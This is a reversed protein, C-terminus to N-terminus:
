REPTREIGNVVFELPEGKVMHVINRLVGRFRGPIPLSGVAIHPTAIVNPLKLLPNDAPTPEQKWVDLAAGAIEGTTLARCLAQEDVLGGRATNVLFASKKMLKFQATGMMNETEPTHSAHLSVFDSERLLNDLPAYTAGYQAAEEASLKHRTFYLIHLGFAKARKATEAGTDGFGIIGLTKGWLPTIGEIQTWNYVYQTPTTPRPELGLERYYGGTVRRHAEFLGKSLALLLCLAHEAVGMHSPAPEVALPMGRKTIAEVAVQHYRTGLKMVFRLKPGAAIVEESVPRRQGAGGIVLADAEPLMALLQSLEETKPEQLDIEYGPLAKGIETTLFETMEDFYHGPTTEALRVKIRDM